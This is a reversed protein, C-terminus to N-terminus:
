FGPNRLPLSFRFFSYMKSITPLGIAPPLIAHAFRGPSLISWVLWTDFSSYLCPRPPAYKILVAVQLATRDEQSHGALWVEVRALDLLRGLNCLVALCWVVTCITSSYMIMLRLCIRNAIDAGMGGRGNGFGEGKEEWCIVQGGVECFISAM